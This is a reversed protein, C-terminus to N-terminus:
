PCSTTFDDYFWGVSGVQQFLVASAQVTNAGFQATYSVRWIRATGNDAMQQTLTCANKGTIVINTSMGSNAQEIIRQVEGSPPGDLLNVFQNLLPIKAVTAQAQPSILGVIVVAVFIVVFALQLLKVLPRGKKVKVPKMGIIPQTVDDPQFQRSM